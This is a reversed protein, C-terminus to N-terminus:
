AIFRPPVRIKGSLVLHVYSQSCGIESAIQRQFLGEARLSHIRQVDADRFLTSPHDEGYRCLYRGKRMKDATNEQTTGIWLHDPNICPPNDCRHLVQPDHVTPAKLEALEGRLYMVVRAVSRTKRRYWMRGYNNPLRDGQWEMCGSPTTVTQELIWDLLRQGGMGYPRPNHKSSM